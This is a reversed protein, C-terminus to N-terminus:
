TIYQNALLVGLILYDTQRALLINRRPATIQIVTLKGSVVEFIPPGSTFCNETKRGFLTPAISSMTFISLLCLVWTTAILTESDVSEAMARITTLSGSRTSFNNRCFLTAKPTQSTTTTSIRSTAVCNTFSSAASNM